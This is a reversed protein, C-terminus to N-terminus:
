SRSFRALVTLVYKGDEVLPKLGVGNKRFFRSMRPLLGAQSRQIADSPNPQDHEWYREVYLGHRMLWSSLTRLDFYNLHELDVRFGLWARGIRSIEGGNPISILLLGDDVLHQTVERLFLDPNILHEIVQFACIVDFRANDQFESFCEISRARLVDQALRDQEIGTVYAGKNRCQEL